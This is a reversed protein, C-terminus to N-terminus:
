YYVVLNYRATLVEERLRSFHFLGIVRELKKRSAAAVEAENNYALLVLLQL